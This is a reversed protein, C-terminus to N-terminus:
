NSDNVITNATDLLTPQIEYMLYVCDRGNVKKIRPLIRIYLGGFFSANYDCVEDDLAWGVKELSKSPKGGLICIILNVGVAWHKQLDINAEAQAAYIREATTWIYQDSFPEYVLIKGEGLPALMDVTDEESQILEPEREVVADNKKENALAQDAWAAGLGALMTEKSIHEKHMFLITTVTLAMAVGTPIYCLGTKLVKKAKSGNQFDEERSKEVYRKTDKVACYVTAVTGVVAIGTMIGTKHDILWAGLKNM